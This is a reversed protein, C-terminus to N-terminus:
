DSLFLLLIQRPKNLSNSCTEHAVCDVAYVGVKTLQTEVLSYQTSEQNRTDDGKLSVLRKSSKQIGLHTTFLALFPRAVCGGCGCLLEVATVDGVHSREHGM